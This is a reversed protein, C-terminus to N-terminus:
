EDSDVETPADQTSAALADDVERWGEKPLPHLAGSGQPWPLQALAKPVHEYMADLLNRYTEDQISGHVRVMTDMVNQQAMALTVQEPRAASALRTDMREILENLEARKANPNYERAWTSWGDIRDADYEWDWHHVSHFLDLLERLENDKPESVDSM